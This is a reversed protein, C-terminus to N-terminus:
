DELLIVHLELPGHVGLALVREIDATRSAGTVFSTYSGPRSTLAALDKEIDWSTERIRSLPLVAVHIECLMTALRLEESCADMVLTGTEAVALDAVTFGIDIGGPHNRMGQKICLVGREACLAFLTAFAEDSLGPAAIIRAPKDGCVAKAQNSLPLDCGSVQLQCAEKSLCLDVTRAMAENLSAAQTVVASVLQAKETFLARLANRDPM